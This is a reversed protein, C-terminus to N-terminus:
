RSGAGHTSRQQNQQQEAAQIVIMASSLAASRGGVPSSAAESREGGRPAEPECVCGGFEDVFVIGTLRMGVQQCARTCNPLTDPDVKRTAPTVTRCGALGLVLVAALLTRM